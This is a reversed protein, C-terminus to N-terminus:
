CPCHDALVVVFAQSGVAKNVGACNAGGGGVCQVQGLWGLKRHGTCFVTASLPACTQALASQTLHHWETSELGEKGM